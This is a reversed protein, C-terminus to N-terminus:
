PLEGQVAEEPFCDRLEAPIGNERLLEVFTKAYIKTEDRQLFCLWFADGLATIQVFLPAALVTCSVYAEKIYDALAGWDFQGAYSVCMTEPHEIIPEVAKRCHRRKEEPTQLTDIEESFAAYRRVQCLANDRDMQLILSGRSATLQTLVPLADTREDYRLFLQMLQDHYNNEGLLM